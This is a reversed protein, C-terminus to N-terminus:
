EVFRYGVGYVTVIHKPEHPHAELKQRLRGVLNDVARSTRFAHYGWVAHLLQDRAIVQGKHAVFYRLVEFELTSLAVDSGGRRAHQHLFDVDIDGFRYTGRVKPMWRRIMVQLRALVDHTRIPRTVYDDAGIELARITDTEQSRGSLMLIPTDIGRERLSQCMELAGAHPLMLDIIVADPRTQEVLRVGDEGVPALCVEYGEAELHQKLSELLAVDDEILLIRKLPAKREKALSGSTWESRAATAQFWQSRVDFSMISVTTVVALPM